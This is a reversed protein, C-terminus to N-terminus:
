KNLAITPCIGVSAVAEAKEKIEEMEITYFATLVTKEGATMNYYDSPKVNHYKWCYYM